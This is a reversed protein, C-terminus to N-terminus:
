RGGGTPGGTWTVTQVEAVNARTLIQGYRLYKRGSLVTNGDPLTTDAGVATVTSWDITVGAIKFLAKAPDSALAMVPYGTTGLTNRGYTGAPM